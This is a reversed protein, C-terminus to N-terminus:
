RQHILSAIGREVLGSRTARSRARRKQAWEAASAPAWNAKHALGVATLQSSVQLKSLISKVQTRVTSEAVFREKAIESVQKGAMLLGLVEAERQTLYDLRSRLELETQKQQRWCRVLEEREGAPMVVLGDLLRRIAVFIGGLASSKPVVSRAGHAICEGWRAQDRSGTVVVVAVGQQSLPRVLDLGSGYDGLDLDLLVLGPTLRLITPLLRAPQADGVPTLSVRQVDYGEASLAWQLSEAFLSHDEVLVVRTPANRAIASATM